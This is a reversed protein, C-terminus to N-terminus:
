LGLEGQKGKKGQVRSAKKFTVNVQCDEVVWSHSTSPGVVRMIDEISSKCGFFRGKSVSDGGSWGIRM